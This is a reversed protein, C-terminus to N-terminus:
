RKLKEEERDGSRRERERRRFDADDKAFSGSFLPAVFGSEIQSLDPKPHIRKGRGKSKWPQVEAAIIKEVGFGREKDQVDKWSDYTSRLNDPLANYFSEFLNSPIKKEFYRTLEEHFPKPNPKRKDCAGAFFHAYNEHGIRVPELLFALPNPQQLAIDIHAKLAEINPELVHREM